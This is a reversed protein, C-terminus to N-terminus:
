LPKVIDSIRNIPLGVVTAYDGNLSAILSSGKGQLRYSGAAGIWENSDLYDNIFHESLAKFAVQAKDCGSYVQGNFLFAYGSYVSHTAGSLSQIQEYAETRTKAKGMLTSGLLVLTDCTLVPIDPQKHAELFCTLKKRALTEVLLAPDAETSTEDTDTPLVIVECGAVELLAKRAPSASALILRPIHSAFVLQQTTPEDPLQWESM